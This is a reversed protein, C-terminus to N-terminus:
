TDICSIRLHTLTILLYTLKNDYLLWIALNVCHGRCYAFLLTSVFL